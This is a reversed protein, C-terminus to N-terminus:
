KKLKRISSFFIHMFAVAEIESEYVSHFHVTFYFRGQVKFVELAIYKLLYLWVINIQLLHFSCSTTAECKNMEYM